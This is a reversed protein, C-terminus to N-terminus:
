DEIQDVLMPFKVYPYDTCFIDGNVLKVKRTHGRKLPQQRERFGAEPDSEASSFPTSVMEHPDHELFGYKPPIPSVSKPYHEEYKEYAGPSRSDYRTQLPEVPYGMPQDYSSDEEVQYGQYATDGFPSMGSRMPIDDHIHTNGLDEEDDSVDHQTIPTEDRDYGRTYRSNYAM